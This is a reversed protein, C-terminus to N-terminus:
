SMQRTHTHTHTHPIYGYIYTTHPSSSPLSRHPFPGGRVVYREEGLWKWEREGHVVLSKEVRVLV